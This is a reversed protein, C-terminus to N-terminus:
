WPSQQDGQAPRRLSRAGAGRMVDRWRADWAAKEAAAQEEILVLWQAPTEAAYGLRAGAGGVTLPMLMVILQLKM